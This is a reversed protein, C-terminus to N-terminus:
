ATLEEVNEMKQDIVKVSDSKSGGRKGQWRQTHSLYCVFSRFKNSLGHRRVVVSFLCLEFLKSFLINCNMVYINIICTLM